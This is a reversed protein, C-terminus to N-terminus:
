NKNLETIEESFSEKCTTCEVHVENKNGLSILLEEILNEDLVSKNINAICSDEIHNYINYIVKLPYNNYIYLKDRQDQHFLIVRRKGLLQCLWNDNGDYHPQTCCNGWNVWVQFKFHNTELNVPIYKKFMENEYQAIYHESNKCQLFEKFTVYKHRVLPFKFNFQIPPFFNQSHSSILIKECNKMDDLVNKANISHWGFKPNLLSDEMNEKNNFWFNMAMCLGTEEDPEESFVFHFYGLPIFLMEGPRLVIEMKKAQYYFPFKTRDPFKETIQSYRRDDFWAQIGQNMFLLNDKGKISTV